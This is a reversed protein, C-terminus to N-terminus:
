HARGFQPRSAQTTRLLVPSQTHSSIFIWPEDEGNGCLLLLQVRDEAEALPRFLAEDSLFTIAILGSWFPM